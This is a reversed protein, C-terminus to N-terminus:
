VFQIQAQSMTNNFSDRCIVYVQWVTKVYGSNKIEKDKTILEANLIRATATIIKDHM